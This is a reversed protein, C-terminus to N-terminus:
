KAVHQTCPELQSHSGFCSVARRQAYINPITTFYLSHLYNYNLHTFVWKFFAAILELPVLMGIRLCFFTVCSFISVCTDQKQLAVTM